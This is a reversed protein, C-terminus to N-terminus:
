FTLIFKWNLFCVRAYDNETPGASWVIINLEVRCVLSFKWIGKKHASLRRRLLPNRRSNTSILPSSFMVCSPFFFPLTSFVMWKYHLNRYGSVRSARFCQLSTFLCALAAHGWSSPICRLNLTSGLQWSQIMSAPGRSESESAAPIPMPTSAHRIWLDRLTHWNSAAQM